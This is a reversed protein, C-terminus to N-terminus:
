VSRLLSPYQNAVVEISALFARSEEFVLELCELFEHGADVLRLRASPNQSVWREVKAQPVVDDRVGHFVLTPASVKPWPEQQQADEMLDYSIPMDRKLSYHYTQITGKEKWEQLQADGLRERWRSAFDVAPALLVLASVPQESAHLAALYGGMSSGILVVDKKEHTLRRLMGRQKSLTLHCFDGGDLAPVEIPVGLAAFSQKFHQAKRSSPGSAFGHLYVIM